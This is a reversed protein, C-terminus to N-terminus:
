RVSLRKAPLGLQARIAGAALKAKPLFGVAPSAVILEAHDEKAHTSILIMPSPTPGAESSLRRVVDFGSERDLNIDVLIVDPALDAERRIADARNTAVAM